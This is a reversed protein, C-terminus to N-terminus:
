FDGMLVLGASGPSLSVAPAPRVRGRRWWWYAGGAAVVAGTIALGAGLPASDFYREPQKGTLHVDEDLAVLVLGLALLATGGGVVLAPPLRSPERHPPPPPPRREPAAHSRLTASIKATEGEKVSLSRTELAFGPMELVVSHLGPYTRLTTDTAGVREGDLIIQAGPPTSSVAITTRGARVALERLLRGALETAAANLEPDACPECYREGVILVREAPVMARATLVIMPATDGPRHEIAVVFLRRLDSAPAPLCAWPQKSDACSALTDADRRDRPAPSLAWGAARTVAEVATSVTARELDGTDGRVLVMGPEAAAAGVALLISVASSILIRQATM